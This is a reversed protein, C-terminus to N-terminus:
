ELIMAIQGNGEIRHKRKRGRKNFSEEPRKDYRGALYDFLIMQAEKLNSVTAIVSPKEENSIYPMGNANRVIYM